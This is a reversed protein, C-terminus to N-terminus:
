LCVNQYLLYALIIMAFVMLYCFYCLGVILASVHRAQLVFYLVAIVDKPELSLNVDEKLIRYLEDM